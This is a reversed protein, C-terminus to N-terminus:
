EGDIRMIMWSCYGEKTSHLFEVPIKLDKLFRKVANIVGFETGVRSDADIYDHGALIGGQRVRPWWSCMDAYAGEETHDADIYVYDFFFLPFVKAIINSQGRFIKVSPDLMFREFVVKYIGDLKNQSMGTDQQGPDDTVRYHDVGILLEPKTSALAQLNFGFRVGVECLRRNLGHRALFSPIDSRREIKKMDNLVSM